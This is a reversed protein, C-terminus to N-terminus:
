MPAGPARHTPRLCPGNQPLRPCANTGIPSPCIPFGPLLQPCFRPHVPVKPGESGDMNFPLGLIIGTLARAELIAILSVADAAFKTRRITELPTAVSRLGDSVAVGITKTGLDLGMVAGTAPLATAFDVIDDLIM